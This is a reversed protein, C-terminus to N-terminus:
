GFSANKAGMRRAYGWRIATRTVVRNLLDAHWPMPRLIDVCLVVRVGESRNHVEHDWDDDFLLGEGERWHHEVDRIQMWPPNEAPVILPLHYRLYGFYPSVHPPVSKGPELISFFAQFLDPLTDLVEVTRPCRARNDAPKLGMAYLLFVRWGTDADSSIHARGPDIEHYRPIASRDPLVADLEERIVGRAAELRRLEPRTQDIDYVVPRRDGGAAHYYVRNALKRLM